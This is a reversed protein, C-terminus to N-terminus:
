GNKVGKVARGTVTYTKDGVWVAKTVYEKDTLKIAKVGKTTRGTYNIESLPYCNYYDSSSIIAVKDDDDSSPIAAVLSDGDELKIVATGKLVYRTNV